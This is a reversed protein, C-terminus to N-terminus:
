VEGTLVAIPLKKASINERVDVKDVSIYLWTRDTKQTIINQIGSWSQPNGVIQEDASYQAAM